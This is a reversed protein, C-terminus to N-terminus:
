TGYWDILLKICEGCRKAVLSRNRGAPPVKLAINALSLWQNCGTSTSETGQHGAGVPTPLTYTVFWVM